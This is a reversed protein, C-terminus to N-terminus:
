AGALRRSSWAEHGGMLFPPHAVLIVGTMALTIFGCLAWTLPEGILVAAM